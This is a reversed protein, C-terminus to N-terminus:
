QHSMAQGALTRTIVKSASFKRPSPRRSAQSTRFSVQASGSPTAPRTKEFGGSRPIVETMSDSPTPVDGDSTGDRNSRWEGVVPSSVDGEGKVARPPHRSTGEMGGFRLVCGKLTGEKPRRM